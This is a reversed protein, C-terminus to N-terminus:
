GRCESKIRSKFPPVLPSKEKPGKKINFGVIRWPSYNTVRLNWGGDLNADAQTVHYIINFKPSKGAAHYSYYNGSKAVQGNPKLLEIKLKVFTPIVRDVHWKAMLTLKGKEIGGSNGRITGALLSIRRTKSTGKSLAFPAYRLRLDGSGNCESKPQFKSRFYYAVPNPDSGKRIDLGKVDYRSSNSFVLKFDGTKNAEARSIETGLSCKPSTGLPAYYSYCRETDLTTNGHKLSVTLKNPAVGVTYWKVKILFKGARPNTLGDLKREVTQGRRVNIPVSGSLTLDSTDAFGESLFTATLLIVVWMGKAMNRKLQNGINKNRKKM